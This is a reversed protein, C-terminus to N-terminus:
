HCDRQLRASRRSSCGGLPPPRGPSTCAGRRSCTTTTPPEGATRWPTAGCPSCGRCGAPGGVAVLDDVHHAPAHGRQGVRAEGVQLPLANGLNRTGPLAPVPVGERVFILLILL